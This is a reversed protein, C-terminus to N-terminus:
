MDWLHNLPIFGSKFDSKFYEKFKKFNTGSVFKLTSFQALIVDPIKEFIRSMFLAFLENSANGILQNYYQSVSNRTAVGTKNSGTGAVTKATTAEAYPPNIYIILKKRKEDDNIIDLLGKPLKSFDDNLFDFQFVNGELLNAGNLIRDKMVNVDAMDLTSAYINYKNTLGTLLNGTGAACDWVTYEKPVTSYIRNGFLSTFVLVM